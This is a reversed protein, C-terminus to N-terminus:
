ASILAKLQEQLDAMTKVFGLRDRGFELIALHKGSPVLGIRVKMEAAIGAISEPGYVVSAQGQGTRKRPYEGPRSPTKHPRPNSVGLRQMHQAQFFLAARLLRKAAEQKVKEV